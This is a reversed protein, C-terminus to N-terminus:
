GYSPAGMPPTGNMKPFVAGSTLIPRHGLPAMTVRCCHHQQLYTTSIILSPLPICMYTSYM